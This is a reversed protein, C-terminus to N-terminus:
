WFMDKLPLTKTMSATWRERNLQKSVSARGIIPPVSSVDKLTTFLIRGIGHGFFFRSLDGGVEHRGKVVHLDARQLSLFKPCRRNREPEYAKESVIL